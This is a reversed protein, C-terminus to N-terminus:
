YPRTPESIHILSLDQAGDENPTFVSTATFPTAPNLEDISNPLVTIMVSDTAMPTQCNDTVRVVYLTTTDPYAAIPSQIQSNNLSSDPSWQYSYNGNGGSATANLYALQQEMISQDLGADVQLSDFLTIGIEISDSICGLSDNAFVLLTMPGTPCVTQSDSAPLGNNWAYSYASGTGGTATVWLDVCGSICVQEETTNSILQIPTNEYILTSDLNSICGVSDKVLIPYIGLTLNDFNNNAVWTSGGDISYEFPTIGGNTTITIEGNGTGACLPSNNSISAIVPSNPHALTDVIIPSVCGNADMYSSFYIGTGLQNFISDAGYLNGTSYTYASSNSTPQIQIIGDTLGCNPQTVITNPAPLDFVSVLITDYFTCNCANSYTVYIEADTTTSVTALGASYNVLAGPVNTSWTITTAGISCQDVFSTTLNITDGSCISTDAIPTYDSSVYVSVVTTDSCYGLSDEIVLQYNTTTDPWVMPNQISTDNINYNPLWTYNYSSEPAEFSMTFRTDPRIFNAETASGALCANATDIPLAMYTLFQQGGPTTTKFGRTRTSTNQTANFNRNDFCIQVILNSTGDWVYPSTFTLMNWGTTINVTQSPFVNVLATSPYITAPLSNIQSECGMSLSYNYYTATGNVATINFGLETILGAQLGMAQLESGRYLYMQKVSKFANGFPAPYMPTYPVPITTPLTILPGSTGDNPNYDLLIDTTYGQNGCPSVSEVCTATFNAGLDLFLDSSDGYSCIEGPTPIITPVPIPPVKGVTNTATKICGDPSTMTVNYTTTTPALSMPNQSSPDSLRIINDWAYTFTGPISAGAYLQMSDVSCTVTDPGSFPVYNPAATITITDTNQCTTSLNSTLIYTTTTQPSVQPSTCNQCTMNFGPSTPVTDIPSGSLVSWNFITGGSGNLQAWQVGQCIAQDPGAYTSQTVKIVYSSSVLGFLPCADDYATVSFSNFPASGSATTWTVNMIAPNGPTNTIIAGPLVTSINSSLTVIDLTDPDPFELDFSFSNGVCVEITTSDVLIGSGAFNLFGGATPPLNSCAIVVFQIDRTVCGKLIGTGYEYECVQVSVVFSGLLTPTFVLQGTNQNLVAGPIPVGASYGPNYTVATHTGNNSSAIPDVLSYVISDGDPEVVGFNYNVLQNQCVYPIPQANFVPSNNCSDVVSNITAPIWFGSQGVLNVSSNRCCSSWSMTWSNCVPNLVVLDSYIYQQMGPLPGGNCTSNAISAACLQSVETGIPPNQLTLNVNQTQGCPSEFTVAASNPAGAGSCDRFLNFTVLFTNPGVCVYNFDAGAFHTASASNTFVSMGIVLILTFIKHLEKM